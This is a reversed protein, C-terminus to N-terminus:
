PLTSELSPNAISVHVVRAVGARKAAYFLARSNTVANAFSARGHDFRVWYTNYLTTVGEFSKALAVQDDFRYPLAEIRGQLPHPRDSL